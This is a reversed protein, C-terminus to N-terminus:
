SWLVKMELAQIIAMCHPCPKSYQLQNDKSLRVVCITYKHNLHIKGWVNLIASTEAHLYNFKKYHPINYRNGLYKVKPDTIYENYGVSVLKKRRFIAAVHWPHTKRPLTKAIEYTKSLLNNLNKCRGRLQLIAVM